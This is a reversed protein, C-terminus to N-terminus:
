EGLRTRDEKGKRVRRLLFLRAFPGLGSSLGRYLRLGLPLAKM